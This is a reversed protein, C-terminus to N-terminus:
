VDALITEIIERAGDLFAETGVGLGLAEEAAATDKMAQRRNRRLVVNADDRGDMQSVVFSRLILTLAALKGDLMPLITEDMLEERPEEVTGLTLAPPANPCGSAEDRAIVQALRWGPRETDDSALALERAEDSKDAEQQM